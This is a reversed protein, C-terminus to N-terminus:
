RPVVVLDGEALDGEVEVLTDLFTGIEVGVLVREGERDVQVAYGGESLAILSNVPVALVGEARDSVLEVDVPARDLDRALGPDDLDIIVDVVDSSEVPGPVSRVVRSIERITGSTTVQGPLVVQVADGVAALDRDDVPLELIVEQDPTSVELLPTGPGIVDGVAVLVAGVRVSQEFFVVRGLEVTESESLGRDERWAEVAAATDDDFEDDPQLPEDDGDVLLGWESLNEELQAIDPGPDIDPGLPRWMPRAGRMVIVPSGDVEILMDGVEIRDDGEPVATVTGPLGGSVVRRNSFELSAEFTEREILDTRVVPTSGLDPKVVETDEPDARELRDALALGGVVGVVLLVVGALIALVRGM